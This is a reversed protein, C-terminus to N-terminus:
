DISNLAELTNVVSSSKVMGVLNEKKTGNNLILDKIEKYTLSLKASKIVAAVGAVVPTAMSTGMSARYPIDDDSCPGYCYPLGTSNLGGNSQDGGPAAIHVTTGGFNSYSTLQNYSDVSAISLINDQQINAPYIPLNDNCDGIGDMGGNGAAAIILSNNSKALAVSNIIEQLEATIEDGANGGLSLNIIDAGQDIAYLIGAAITGLDGQGDASLVKVPLIKARPAVGMYTSAALGAVHTGHGNDDIPYADGNYFDWGVYDNIYGNQDDDISNALQGHKDDQNKKINPSLHPHNYYVGTDVIAITVGEGQASLNLANIQQLHPFYRTVSSPREQRTHAGYYETDSISSAQFDGSILIPEYIKNAKFKANPLQKKLESLKAGIFEILKRNENIVRFQIGLESALSQAQAKTTCSAIVGVQEQTQPAKTSETVKKGCSVISLS